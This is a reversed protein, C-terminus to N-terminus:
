RIMRLSKLLSCMAYESNIRYSIIMKLCITSDRLLQETCICYPGRLISM